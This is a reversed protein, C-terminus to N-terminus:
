IPLSAYRPRIIRAHPRIPINSPTETLSFSRIFAFPKSSPIIPQAPETQMSQGPTSENRSQIYGYASTSRILHIGLNSYPIGVTQLIKNLSLYRPGEKRKALVVGGRDVGKIDRSASLLVAKLGDKLGALCSCRRGAGTQGTLEM